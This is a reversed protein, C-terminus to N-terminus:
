LSLDCSAMVGCGVASTISAGPHLHSTLLLLPEAMGVTLFDLTSLLVFFREVANCCNTSIISLNWSLNSSSPLTLHFLLLTFAIGPDNPDSASKEQWACLLGPLNSLYALGAFRYVLGYAKCGFVQQRRLRGKIRQMWFNTDDNKWDQM